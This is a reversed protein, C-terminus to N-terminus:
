DSQELEPWHKLFFDFLWREVPYVLEPNEESTM